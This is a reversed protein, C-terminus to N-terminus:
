CMSFGKGQLVPVGGFSVDVIFIRSSKTTSRSTAVVSSQPSGGPDM